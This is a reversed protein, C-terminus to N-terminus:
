YLNNIRKYTDEFDGAGDYDYYLKEIVDTRGNGLTYTIILYWNHSINGREIKSKYKVEVNKIEYWSLFIKKGFLPTLLIVEQDNYMIRDNRLMFFGLISFMLPIVLSFWQRGLAVLIWSAVSAGLFFRIVRKTPKVERYEISM